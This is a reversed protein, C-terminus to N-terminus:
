FPAAFSDDHHPDEDPQLEIIGDTDRGVFILRSRLFNRDSDVFASVFGGEELRAGVWRLGDFEMAPNFPSVGPIYVIRGRYKRLWIRMQVRDGLEVRTVRDKYTIVKRIEMLCGIDRM